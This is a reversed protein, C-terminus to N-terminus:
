AQVYARSPSRPRHCRGPRHLRRRTCWPRAPSTASSAHGARPVLGMTNGALRGPGLGLPRLDPLHLRCGSATSSTARSAPAAWWRARRSRRPTDAFAFQFLFFALFAVGTPRLGPYATSSSTSTASSGTAPASSSPSASPGTSSLRVPLHRLHVGGPREGDGPLPRLRGRPGHLRGAHLVRPVRHGVGVGHQGPQRLRQSSPEVVVGVGRGAHRPVDHFGQHHWPAGRHGDVEGGAPTRVSSM